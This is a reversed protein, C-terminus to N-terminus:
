NNLMFLVKFSGAMRSAVLEANHVLAASVDRAEIADNNPGDTIL